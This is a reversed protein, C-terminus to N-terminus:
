QMLQVFLGSTWLLWGERLACQGQFYWEM